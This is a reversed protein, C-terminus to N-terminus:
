SLTPYMPVHVCGIYSSGFDIVPWEPRNNCYNAVRDEKELGLELLNSAFCHVEEYIQAYTKFVFEKGVKKGVYPRDGYKEAVNDLIDALTKRPCSDTKEWDILAQPVPYGDKLAM